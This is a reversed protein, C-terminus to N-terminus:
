ESEGGGGIGVRLIVVTGRRKPHKSKGLATRGGSQIRKKGEKRKEGKGRQNSEEEM